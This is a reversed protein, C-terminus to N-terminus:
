ESVKMCPSELKAVLMGAASALRDWNPLHPYFSIAEGIAPYEFVKGAYYHAAKLIESRDESAIPIQAALGKEDAANLMSKLNHGYAGEALQVMKIGQLSLFAKLGLEISHCVLYHRVPEFPSPLPIALASRLYGDAYTWLALPGMEYVAGLMSVREIAANQKAASLLRAKKSIPM